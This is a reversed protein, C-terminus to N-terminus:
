VKVKRENQAGHTLHHCIAFPLTLIESLDKGRKDSRLNVSVNLFVIELCKSDVNNENFYM